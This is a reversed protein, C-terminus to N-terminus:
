TGLSDAVRRARAHFMGIDLQGALPRRIPKSAGRLGEGATRVHQLNWGVGSLMVLVVEATVQFV